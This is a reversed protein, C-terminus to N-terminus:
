IKVMVPLEPRMDCGIILVEALPVQLLKGPTIVIYLNNVYFSSTCFNHRYFELFFAISKKANNDDKMFSPVKYNICNTIQVEAGGTRLFSNGVPEKDNRGENTEAKKPQDNRGSVPNPYFFFFVKRCYIILLCYLIAQILSIDACSLLNVQQLEHNPSCNM